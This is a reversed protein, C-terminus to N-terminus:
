SSESASSRRVGVIRPCPGDLIRTTKIIPPPSPEGSERRAAYTSNLRSSPGPARLHIISRGTMPSLNNNWSACALRTLWPLALVRVNDARRNRSIMRSAGLSRDGGNLERWIPKEDRRRAPRPHRIPPRSEDCLGRPRLTLLLHSRYNTVASPRVHYAIRLFHMLRSERTMECLNM